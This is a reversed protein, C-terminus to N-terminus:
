DKIREDRENGEESKESKYREEEESTIQRWARLETQHRKDMQAADAPRLFSFRLPKLDSFKFALIFLQFKFVFFSLESFPLM